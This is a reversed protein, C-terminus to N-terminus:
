ISLGLEAWEVLPEVDGRGAHRALVSCPAGESEHEWIGHSLSVRTVAYQDNPDERFPRVRALLENVALSAILSNLQIVAPRDVKAGRIYGEELQSRFGAPDTRAMAAARVHELSYTNRSLLSSGDPRLYHVSGCVQTVGGRGDADIRVGLDIFPLLYFCALKNLLHRGDITDVCGIVLDCVSVARVVEPDFLSRARVMVETGFGMAHISREAVEVKPRAERADQATANVIRNLNKEEVVDPDVLLLAGVGNRALQEIVISGTGSCGIVAVHLKRLQDFTGRGFAQAIREGYAPLANSAPGTLYFSLDDGVVSVRELSEFSQDPWVIRGFMSGDDMLIASALPRETELWAYVSPFLARDSIDDVSSFQAFGRHGHIKVIAWGQAAAEAILPVIFETPWTVQDPRRVRCIEHPVPVVRRVLLRQRSGCEGRGCLAIAVAECGDDPFLHRALLARQASTLTLTTTM